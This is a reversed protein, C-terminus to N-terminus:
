STPQGHIIHLKSVNASSWEVLRRLVGIERFDM